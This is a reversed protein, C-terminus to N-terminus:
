VQFYDQLEFLDICYHEEHDSVKDIICHRFLGKKNVVFHTGDLLKFYYQTTGPINFLEPEGNPLTAGTKEESTGNYNGEWDGFLTKFDNGMVKAYFFDAEKQNKFVDLFKKHLESEKGDTKNVITCVKM